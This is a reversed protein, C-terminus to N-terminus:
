MALSRSLRQGRGRGEPRAGVPRAPPADAEGTAPPPPETGPPGSDGVQARRVGSGPDSRHRVRGPLTRGHRSTAGGGGGRGHLQGDGLGEVGLVALADVPPEAEAPAPQEEDGPLRGIEARQGGVPDPEVVGLADYAGRRPRHHRRGQSRSLQVAEVRLDGDHGLQRRDDRGQGGGGLQVGALLPGEIEEDLGGVALGARDLLDAVGGQGGLGGAGGGGPAVHGEHEPAAAPGGVCQVDGAHIGVGALSAHHGTLGVRGHGPRRGGAARDGPDEGGLEDAVPPAHVASHAAGPGM